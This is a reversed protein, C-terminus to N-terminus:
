NQQNMNDIMREIEDRADYLALSFLTLGMSGYAAHFGVGGGPVYMTQPAFRDRVGLVWEVENWLEEDTPMVGNWQKLDELTKIPYEIMWHTKGSVKTKHTGYDGEVGETDPPQPMYVSRCLDIGLGNFVRAT